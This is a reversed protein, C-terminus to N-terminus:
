ARGAKECALRHRRVVEGFPAVEAADGHAVIPQWCTPCDYRAVAETLKVPVLDSPAGAVIGGTALRYFSCREILLKRSSM